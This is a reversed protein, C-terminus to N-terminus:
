TKNNPVWGTTFYFNDSHGSGNANQREYNFIFQTEKDKDKFTYTNDSNKLITVKGKEKLKGTDMDLDSMLYEGKEFLANADSHDYIQELFQYCSSIFLSTLTVILINKFKKIDQGKLLNM